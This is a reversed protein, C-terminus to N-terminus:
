EGRLGGRVLVHEAEPASLHAVELALEDCDGDELRQEKRENGVSLERDHVFFKVRLKHSLGSSPFDISQRTIIILSSNLM